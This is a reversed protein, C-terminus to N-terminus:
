ILENIDKILFNVHNLEKKIKEDWVVVTCNKNKINDLKSTNYSTLFITKEIDLKNDNILNFFSDILDSKTTKLEYINLLKLQDTNIKSFIQEKKLDLNLVISEYIVPEIKISISNQEHKLFNVIKRDIDIASKNSMIAFTRSDIFNSKRIVMSLDSLFTPNYYCVFSDVLDNAELSINIKLFPLKIGSNNFNDGLFAKIKELIFDSNIGVICDGKITLFDEKTFELTSKNIALVNEHGYVSFQIM